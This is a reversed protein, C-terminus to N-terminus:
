VFYFLRSKHRGQTKHDQEGWPTSSVRPPPDTLIYNTNVYGSQIVSGTRDSWEQIMRTLPYLKDGARLDTIAPQVSSNDEMIYFIWPRNHNSLEGLPRPDLMHLTRIMTVGELPAIKM